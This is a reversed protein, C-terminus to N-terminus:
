DQLLFYMHCSPREPNTVGGNSWTGSQIDKGTLVYDGYHLEYTDDIKEEPIVFIWVPYGYHWLDTYQEASADDVVKIPKTSLSDYPEIGYQLSEAYPPLKYKMAPTVIVFLDRGLRGDLFFFRSDYYVYDFDDQDKNDQAYFIWTSDFVDEDVEDAWPIATAETKMQNGEKWAEIRGLLYHLERGDFPHWTESDFDQVCLLGGSPLMMSTYIQDSYHKQYGQYYDISSQDESEKPLASEQGPNEQVACATFLLLLILSFCALRKM